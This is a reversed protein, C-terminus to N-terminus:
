PSLRNVDRPFLAALRVNGLRALQSILRELGIAFGGHPAMGFRFADLYHEFPAPALGREALARLYDEHRHLRQGGTVLELGRFLLDFSNSSLPREPDPHTYFPRKRLPYGTVFLLESGHEELAWAGLAREDAPALDLESRRDEGTLRHSLALAEEFRLEPIKEPVLPLEIGLLALERPARRELAAFIGALTERLVGMVTRHSEVFAIEVDLSVYENLHRASAHREARFVPGVEFVREFVGTMIQKYFQPSQALYAKREFYAVEFVEAGGETAQEVLKPTQVETAGLCELTERFGAMAAAGLRFLARREPHRNTVVAHDLLVSLGAESGKKHLLVPPPETVASIVELTIEKLEIGGPAQPTATVTGEVAVVSEVGLAALKRRETENETVGQITGWGDRLVFFALGGLRRITHLWGTVRVRQSVRSPCEVTRTREM